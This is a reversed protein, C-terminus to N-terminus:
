FRRTWTNLNKVGEKMKDYKNLVNNILVRENHSVISDILTKGILFEISNLKSKTLLVFHENYNLFTCVKKQKRIM